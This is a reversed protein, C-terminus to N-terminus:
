NFFNLLANSDKIDKIFPYDFVRKIIINFNNDNGDLKKSYIKEKQILYNAKGLITKITFALSNLFLQKESEYKNNNIM